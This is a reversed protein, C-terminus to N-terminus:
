GDSRSGGGRASTETLRETGVILLSSGVEEEFAEHSVAQRFIAIGDV